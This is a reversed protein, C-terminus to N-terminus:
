AICLLICETIVLLFIHLNEYVTTMFFKRDSNLKCHRSLKEYLESTDSNMLDKWRNEMQQMHVSLRFPAGLATMRVIRFLVAVSLVVLVYM